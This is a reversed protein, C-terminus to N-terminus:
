KRGHNIKPIFIALRFINAQTTPWSHTESVPCNIIIMHVLYPLCRKFLHM